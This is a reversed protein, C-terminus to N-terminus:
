PNNLVIEYAKKFIRMQSEISVIDFDKLYRDLELAYAELNRLKYAIALEKIHQVFLAIKDFMKTHFAVTFDERFIQQLKIFFTNDNLPSARYFLYRSKEDEEFQQIFKRFEWMIEKEPRGYLPISVAKTSDISFGPAVNLILFIHQKELNEKEFINRTNRLIEDQLCCFIVLRFNQIEKKARSLNLGVDKVQFGNSTLVQVLEEKLPHPENIFLCKKIKESEKTVPKQTGTVKDLTQVHYFVTTFRSGKGPTSVLKIEGNMVHVMRQTISLGLGAGHTKQDTQAQHFPMFIVKQDEPSIGPGTDAVEIILTILGQKEEPQAFAHLTVSGEQTFKVANGVLNLLIQRLRAEEFIVYPPISEEVETILRLGKGSAELSFINVVDGVVKRIDTEKFELDINGEEIKSLDLIDNM